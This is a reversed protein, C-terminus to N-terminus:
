AISHQIGRWKMLVVDWFLISALENVGGELGFVAGVRLDSWTDVVGCAHAVVRGGLDVFDEFGGGEKAFSAEAFDESGLDM